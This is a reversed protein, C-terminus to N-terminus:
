TFQDLMEIVEVITQGQQDYSHIFSHIFVASLRSYIWVIVSLTNSETKKNTNAFYKVSKYDYKISFHIRKFIMSQILLISIM